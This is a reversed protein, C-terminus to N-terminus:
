QSSTHPNTNTQMATIELTATSAFITKYRRSICGQRKWQLINKCEDAKLFERFNGALKTGNTNQIVKPRSKKTFITYFAPFVNM